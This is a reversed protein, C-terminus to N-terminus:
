CIQIHITALSYLVKEISIKRFVWVKDKILAFEL